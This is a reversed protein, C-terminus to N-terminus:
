NHKDVATSIGDKIGNNLLADKIEIVQDEIFDPLIKKLGYDM